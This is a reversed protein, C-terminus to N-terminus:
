VFHPCGGNVPKFCARATCDSFGCALCCLQGKPCQSSSTCGSLFVAGPGGSLDALTALFDAAPATVQPTSSGVPPAAPATGALAPAVALIAFLATLVLLRSLPFRSPM